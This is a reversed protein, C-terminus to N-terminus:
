YYGGPRYGTPPHPRRGGKSEYGAWYGDDYGVGVDTMSNTLPDMDLSADQVYKNHDGPTRAGKPHNGDKVGDKFGEAFGREYDKRSM